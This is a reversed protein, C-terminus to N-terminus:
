AQHGIATLSDPVTGPGTPWEASRSMFRAWTSPTMQRSPGRDRDSRTWLVRSAFGVTVAMTWSKSDASTTRSRPVRGARPPDPRGATKSSNSGRRRRTTPQWTPLVRVVAMTASRLPVGRATRWRAVAALDTCRTRSPRTSSTMAASAAAPSLWGRHAAPTDIGPSTSEVFPVQRCAKLKPHCPIGTASKSAWRRPTGTEACGSALAASRASTASPAARSAM